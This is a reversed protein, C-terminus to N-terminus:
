GFDVNKAFTLQLTDLDLACLRSGARPHYVCGCDINIIRPLETGTFQKQIASKSHPTHGHIIYRDGLKDRDLDMERIWLMAEKDALFDQLKFNFGAHVLLYRGVELYYDTHAIFEIYKAPIEDIRSVGFSKLTTDGGNSLFAKFSYKHYLARLMIDDHNGRLCKIQYGDKQLKLIYDLVGKSDPGRNIYDGLLYLTDKPQLNLKERVLRKFTRVCGHIDSIAFRRPIHQPFDM